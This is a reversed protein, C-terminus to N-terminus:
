YLNNFYKVDFRGDTIKKGEMTTFYFRGSIIKQITDLKTITIKGDEILDTGKSYGYFSGTSCSDNHCDPIDPALLYERCSLVEKKRMYIHGGQDVGLTPEYCVDIGQISFYAPAFYGYTATLPHVM